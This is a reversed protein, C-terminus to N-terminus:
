AGCDPRGTADWQHAVPRDAAHEVGPAPGTATVSASRASTKLNACRATSIQVKGDVPLNRSSRTSCISTQAVQSPDSDYLSLYEAIDEPSFCLNKARPILM